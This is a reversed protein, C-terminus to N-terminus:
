TPTNQEGVKAAFAAAFTPCGCAVGETSSSLGSSSGSPPTGKSDLRTKRVELITDIVGSWPGLKPRNVAPQGQCGPPVSYRLMKQITKRAIKNKGSFM